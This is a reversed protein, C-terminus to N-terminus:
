DLDYRQRFFALTEAAEIATDVSAKVHRLLKSLLVILLFLFITQIFSLLVQIVETVFVM